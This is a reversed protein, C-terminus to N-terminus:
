ASFDETSLPGEVQSPGELNQSYYRAYNAPNSILEESEKM